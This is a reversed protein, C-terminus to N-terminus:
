RRGDAQVDVQFTGYRWKEGASENEIKVNAYRGRARTDVKLTSADITFPTLATEKDDQPPIDKISLTVQNNGVLVKFNPLFRRM